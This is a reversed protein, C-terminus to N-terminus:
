EDNGNREFRKFYIILVIWSIIPILQSICSIVCKIKSIRNNKCLRIMYVLNYSFLMLTNVILLLLVIVLIVLLGGINRVNVIINKLESDGLLNLVNESMLIYKISKKVIFLVGVLSLAKIALITKIYTSRSIKLLMGVLGIIGIGLCIWLFVEIQIFWLTGYSIIVLLSVLYIYIKDIIKKKDEM